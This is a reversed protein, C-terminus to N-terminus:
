TLGAYSRLKVSEIAIEVDEDFLLDRCEIGVKFRRAEQAVHVKSVKCHFTISVRSKQIKSFTILDGIHAMGDHDCYLLFDIIPVGTQEFESWLKTSRILGSGVHEIKNSKVYSPVDDTLKKRVEFICKKMYLESGASISTSLRGLLEFNFGNYIPNISIGADANVEDAEMYLTINSFDDQQM